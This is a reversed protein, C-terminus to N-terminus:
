QCGGNVAAGAVAMAQQQEMGCPVAAPPSHEKKVTMALEPTHQRQQQLQQLQHHHHSDGGEGDVISLEGSGDSKDSSASGCSSANSGV